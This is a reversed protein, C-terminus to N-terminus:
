NGFSIPKRYAEKLIDYNVAGALDLSSDTVRASTLIGRLQKWQREDFEAVRRGIPMVFDRQAALEFEVQERTLDKGAAVMLSISKAPEAYTKTWGAIIGHLFQVALSPREHMTRESAFYITDPVHIGFDSVRIVTYPVGKQYLLFGERGINGPIVDVRDNLLADIDTETASERIQSRSVGASRLLADYLIASDTGVQRGVRRGIFDQPTRIGSKELAYFVISSELLGAAFAVIPQGNSRAKLFDIGGTAGFVDAGSVVSEVPGGAEGQEKLEVAIGGRKFLNERIAIIEGAHRSIVHSGVRMSVSTSKTAARVHRDAGGWDYRSFVAAIAAVAIAAAVVRLFVPIGARRERTRRSRRNM